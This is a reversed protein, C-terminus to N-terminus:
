RPNSPKNWSILNERTIRKPRPSHTKFLLCRFQPQMQPLPTKIKATPKMIVHISHELHYHHSHNPTQNQFTSLRLFQEGNGLAEFQKPLVRLTRQKRPWLYSELYLRRIDPTAPRYLHHMSRPRSSSISSSLNSNSIINPSPPTSFQIYPQSIRPM